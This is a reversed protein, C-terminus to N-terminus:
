ITDRFLALEVMRNAFCLPNQILMLKSHVLEIGNVGLILRERTKPICFSVEHFHGEHLIAEFVCKLRVGVCRITGALESCLRVLESFIKRHFRQLSRLSSSTGM